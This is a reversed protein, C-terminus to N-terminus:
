SWPRFKVHYHTAFVGGFRLPKQGSFQLTQSQYVAQEFTVSSSSVRTAARAFNAVFIAKLEEVRHTCDAEFEPHAKLDVIVNKMFRVGTESLQPSRYPPVLPFHTSAVVTVWEHIWLRGFLIM